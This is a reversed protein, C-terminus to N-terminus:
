KAGSGKTTGMEQDGNRVVGENNKKWLEKGHSASPSLYTFFASFLRSVGWGSCTGNRSPRFNSGTPGARKQSALVSISAFEKWELNKCVTRMKQTTPSEQQESNVKPTKEFEANKSQLPKSSEKKEKWAPHITGNRMSTNPNEKVSNTM